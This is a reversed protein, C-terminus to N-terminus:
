KCYEFAELIDSMEPDPKLSRPVAISNRAVPDVSGKSIDFKRRGKAKVQQPQLWRLPKAGDYGPCVVGRTKCKQCEPRTFDCVLRRGRCEWCQKTNPEAM